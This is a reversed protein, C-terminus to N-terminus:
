KRKEMEGHKGCRSCVVYIIYLDTYLFFSKGKCIECEKQGNM